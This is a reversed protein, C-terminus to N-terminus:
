EGKLAIWLAQARAAVQGEATYHAVASHRKRGDIEVRWSLLVHPAGAVVPADLSAALRALVIADGGELFTAVPASTPCDLAAWVLQDPAPEDPTGEPTWTAAFTGDDGLAGPFIRLGDGPARDPGCVVCRPFPHNGAWRDFFDESAKAAEDVSVAAPPEVTVSTARANAVLTDGVSATVGGDGDPEIAIPQELPPPSRLSVEATGDVYDAILGCVYGGNASDAPGSFRGPVVITDV